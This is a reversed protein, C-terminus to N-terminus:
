FPCEESPDSPGLGPGWNTANSMGEVARQHLRTWRLWLGLDFVAAWFRFRMRM